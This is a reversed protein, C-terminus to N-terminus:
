WIVAISVYEDKPNALSYLWFLAADATSKVERTIDISAYM